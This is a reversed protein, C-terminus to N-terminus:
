PAISSAGAEMRQKFRRLDEAIQQDAGQGFLSAVADALKGAPPNYKMSVTVRTGRDDGLSDFRVSGATEVQSDPLSRWAILEPERENIIEAEWNLEAGLPGEATWRSRQDALNEVRSIHELVEPLNALDRWYSFLEAAPREIVISQEVKVGRQAPVGTSGNSDTTDLGLSQYLYCHGSWGRYVLSGGLSGLLLGSWGGKKLGALLLSGGILSSALREGRGVNCDSQRCEATGSTGEVARDSAIRSSQDQEHPGLVNSIPVNTM